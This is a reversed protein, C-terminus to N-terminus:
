RLPLIKELYARNGELWVAHEGEIVEAREEFPRDAGCDMIQRDGPPNHYQGCGPVRTLGLSHGIEHTITNGVLNGLTRIAREIEADRAGGPYEGSEVPRNIVPDFIEDFIPNALPNDGVRPSLQLFSEVFVGGFAGNSDANQGALNDDLRANCTDLGTTNDLGFLSQDNPDPGGIEVTSYELFDVPAEEQVQLNFDAYDRRIVELVRAKVPGSVNRLGFLRLSDTFAPLFKLHVMQRTPLVEFTLPSPPGEVQVDGYTIIPTATGELVGPVGGFETTQCTNRDFDTPRLSFILETGSRWSPSIEIGGPPTPVMVGDRTALVGELRFSTLGGFEGGVFGQGVIRIAQGRSAALPNITQIFPQLLDFTIEVAEGPTEAGDSLVNTLQLTGEFRGPRVGVWDPEFIFAIADRRFNAADIPQTAIDRLDVPMTQGGDVTFEGQLAALTVGEDGDLFGSGRMEFPSAPFVGPATLEIVPVLGLSIEGTVGVRGEGAAEGLQMTVTLEGELQGQGAAEVAAADFVVQLTLDDLYSVAVPFDVPRGAVTGSIAGTYQADSFFGSGTATVATGPLILDAQVATLEMPLIAPERPPETGVPDSCATLSAATALALLGGLLLLRRM